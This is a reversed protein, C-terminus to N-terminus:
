DYAVEAPGIAPLLKGQADLVVKHFGIVDAAIASPSALGALAAVELAFFLPVLIRNLRRQNSNSM